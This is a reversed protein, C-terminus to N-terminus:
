DAVIEAWSRITNDVSVQDPDIGIAYFVGTVFLAFRQNRASKPRKGTRWKWVKACQHVLRIEAYNRRGVPQGENIFDEVEPIMRDFMEPGFHIFGMLEWEMASSVGSQGRFRDGRVANGLCEAVEPDLDNWVAKVKHVAQRLERLKNLEAKKAFRQVKMASPIRWVQLIEKALLKPSDTCGTKNEVGLRIEDIIQAEAKAWDFNEPAIARKSM